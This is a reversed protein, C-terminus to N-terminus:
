LFTVFGKSRLRSGEVKDPMGEWSVEKRDVSMNTLCHSKLGTLSPQQVFLKKWAITNQKVGM